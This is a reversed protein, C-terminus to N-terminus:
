VNSVSHTETFELQKGAELKGNIDRVLDTQKAADAISMDLEVKSEAPQVFFFAKEAACM